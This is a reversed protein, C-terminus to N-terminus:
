AHVRPLFKLITKCGPEGFQSARAQESLHAERDPDIEDRVVVEPEGFM